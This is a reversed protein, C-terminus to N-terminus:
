GCGCAPGFDSARSDAPAAAAERGDQGPAAPVPAAARVAAAFLALRDLGWYKQRGYTFFPVGFVDDRHIDLLAGTGQRRLDERDYAGALEAGDLGLKGGLEAVTAPDCIDRGEQWRLQYALEIYGTGQGHGAAVLYALHPVEWCPDHDIPWSVALGREAALRRVDQLIYLHKEKSMPTYVFRGGAEALLRESRADPEWFPRWDLRAAVDPYHRHM